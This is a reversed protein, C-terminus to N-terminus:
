EWTPIMQRNIVFKKLSLLLCYYDSNLRIGLFLQRFIGNRIRAEIM